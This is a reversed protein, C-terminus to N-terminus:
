TDVGDADEMRIRSGGMIGDGTEEAELVGLNYAVWFPWVVVGGLNNEVWFLPM